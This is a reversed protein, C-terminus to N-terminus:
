PMLHFQDRPFFTVERINETRTLAMLLRELGLGFGANPPMGYDFVRLHYEFSKPNLGKQRLRRTLEAKSSVRSGGSALEIPGHMFDFSESLRHDDKRPKIYFPKIANPWDTIFYFGKLEAGLAELQPSSLDSGWEVEAGADKLKNVVDDYTLRSFVERYPELKLGLMKLHSECESEIRRKVSHICRDILDVFDMYDLYAAEADVSIFESLHSLTRSPEARFAPGIEYVREFAMVLQEKYLQPSQTLFAEKDYYLLPFLAAGGETASAIIKPTSVELFGEEVFFDRLASLTHARIAFLAQAEPRRLDVARLFLRKDIRPLSKAHLQFPPVKSAVGLVKLQRPVIEAGNPAKSAARVVGEVAVASHLSLSELRREVEEPVEGHKSTVQVLGKGDCIVTFVLRGQRRISSVWGFVKVERGSLSATVEPSYHTRRWSGMDEPRLPM